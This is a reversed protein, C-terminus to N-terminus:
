QGEAATRWVGPVVPEGNGSGDVALVFADSRGLSAEHGDHEVAVDIRGVYEGRSLAASGLRLTVRHFGPEGVTVPSPQELRVGAEGAAELGVAVRLTLPVRAVEFLVTVEISDDDAVGASASAIALWRNFGRRDPPRVSALQARAREYEPLVEAVPGHRAVRGGELWLVQDCLHEVQDLESTELLITRGERRRLELREFCRDRYDSSVHAMPDSLLIIDADINLATALALERVRVTGGHRREAAPIEAFDFIEDLRQKTWSRAIGATVGARLANKTPAEAPPMFNTAVEPLPAVIGRLTARGSTPPAAGALIRLLTSKGAGSPGVLALSSGTPVAFTVDAVAWVVDSGGGPVTSEAPGEEDEVDEEDDDEDFVRKGRRRSFIPTPADYLRAAAAHYRKSLAEVVVADTMTAM